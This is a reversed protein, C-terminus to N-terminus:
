SQAAQYQTLSQSRLSDPCAVPYGRRLVRHIRGQLERAEDTFRPNSFLNGPVTGEPTFERGVPHEGSLPHRRIRAEGKDARRMAHYNTYPPYACRM